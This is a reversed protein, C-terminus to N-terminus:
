KSGFSPNYFNFGVEIKDTKDLHAPVRELISMVQADNAENGLIALALLPFLLKFEKLTATNLYFRVERTNIGVFYYQVSIGAMAYLKIGELMISSMGELGDTFKSIDPSFSFKSRNISRYTGFVETVQQGTDDIYTVELRNDKTFNISRLKELLLNSAFQTSLAAIEPTTISFDNIVVPESSEWVMDTPAEPFPAWVGILNERAVDDSCSSCLGASVVLLCCYFLNRKMIHQSLLAYLSLFKQKNKVFVKTNKLFM